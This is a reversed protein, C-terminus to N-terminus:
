AAFDDVHIVAAAVGREGYRLTKRCFCEIHLGNRERAIEALFCREKGTEIVRAKAGDQEHVAVALM